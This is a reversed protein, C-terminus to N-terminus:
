GSKDLKDTVELGMKHLRIEIMGVEQSIQGGFQSPNRM